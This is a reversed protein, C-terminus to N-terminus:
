QLGEIKEIELGIFTKNRFSITACEKFVEGETRKYMICDDMSLGYEDCTYSDHINDNYKATIHYSM